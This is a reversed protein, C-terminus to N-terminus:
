FLFGKLTRSLSNSSAQLDEPKQKCFFIAHVLQLDPVVIIELHLALEVTRISTPPNQVEYWCVYECLVFVYPSIMTSVVNLSLLPTRKLKKEVLAPM